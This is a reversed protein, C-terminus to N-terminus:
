FNYIRKLHILWCRQFQDAAVPIPGEAALIPRRGEENHWGMRMTLTQNFTNETKANVLDLNM